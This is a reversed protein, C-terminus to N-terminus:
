ARGTLSEGVTAILEDMGSGDETAPTLVLRHVGLDAYQRATTADVPGPPTVTIELEGLGDPRDCRAAITRLRKLAEAATPVDLYVGYWGNAGRVARRM